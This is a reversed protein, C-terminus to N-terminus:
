PQDKPLLAVAVRPPASNDGVPLNAGAARLVALLIEGRFIKVLPEDPSNEARVVISLPVQAQAALVKQTWKLSTRAERIQRGTTM